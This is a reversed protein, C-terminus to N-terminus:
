IEPSLSDLEQPKKNKIKEKPQKASIDCIIEWGSHIWKLCGVRSNNQINTFECM